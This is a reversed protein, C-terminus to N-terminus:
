EEQQFADHLGAPRPRTRTARPQDWIARDPWLPDRMINTGFQVRFRDANRTIDDMMQRWATDTQRVLQEDITRLLDTQMLFAQDDMQVRQPRGTPAQENTRRVAEAVQDAIHEELAGRFRNVAQDIAAQLVPLAEMEDMGSIDVRTTDGLQDNNWMGATYFRWGIDIQGPTQVLPDVHGDIPWVLNPRRNQARRIRQQRQAEILEREMRAMRGGGRPAVM